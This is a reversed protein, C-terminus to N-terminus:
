CNAWPNPCNAAYRAYYFAQGSQAMEANVVRLQGDAVRYLEAVTRGYRDTEIQRLMVQNGSQNLLSRLYDRSAVGGQQKLEPADIGCFRIKLTEGLREVRLTDGDHVSKSVVRWLTQDTPLQVENASALSFQSGFPLQCSQLLSVLMPIFIFIMSYPERFILGGYMFGQLYGLSTSAALTFGYTL